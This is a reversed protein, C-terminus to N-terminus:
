KLPKVKQLIEEFHDKKRKLFLSSNETYLIKYISRTATSSYQFYYMEHKGGARTHINVKPINYEEYLFDIIWQLIEKTASCIQWRLNGNGQGNSNKILNVSGDGDFYGRIYDIWYKKNLKYPPKLIFTKAPVISYKALDKKHEECTWRLTCCDYGNTTTYEKIKEDLNMVKAIRELIEKDKIALGIKIENSDKRITGDSALFGLIWAMDPNEKKFFNIDKSTYKIRNKNSLVAAQSFNRIPIGYKELVKKTYNVNSIGLVTKACYLQGRGEEVYLRVIEDEEEQTLNRM